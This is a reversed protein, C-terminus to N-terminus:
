SAPGHQFLRFAAADDVRADLRAFGTFGVQLYDAYRERLIMMQVDRVQRVLYGRKFDGFAISKASVGPDPMDDDITYEFGNITAPFGVTPVPVWVPRNEGDKLKRILKLMTDAMAYRANGRYASNVSHEIDILDDYTIVATASIAGTKGVVGGVTIGEPQDVGTGIALHEAVARGIRTGLKGPLWTELNFVSDQILILAARVMDSTYTHATLKRQGMTVNVDNVPMNEGLIRGKNNTDDNTPWPLDAGTGTVIVNAVGMIGGFAVMTETMVARFAEPVLYGGATDIVGGQARVEGFGEALLERQEPNLRELGRRIFGYFAEAYRTEREAAAAREQGEGTPAGTATVIQSRDIQSRAADRQLREIDGSVVTLRTEATDWNAREEATLDRDEMGQRLEQMRTWITNQEDILRTLATSM